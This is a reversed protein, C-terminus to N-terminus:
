IPHQYGSAALPEGGLVRRGVDGLCTGIRVPARLGKAAFADELVFPDSTAVILEYDEGGGIAEELTAGGAIPVQDLEFGVGSAHALRHLDLGLGDSVDMMATAGAARAVAGEGLRAQPRRYAAALAPDASAPDERLRRLGAASAGLPGTVFLADGPRAGSRLVAPRGGELRGIVSTSVLLQAAVTLDGGVVPCGWRAAAEAIGEAVADADTGSPGGLTVVAGTPVGGMAAIDSVAVTLAKWGVDGLTVLGLDVHVGEVVADTTLLLRSREAGEGTWVVAADDGSWTEGPPPSGIGARLRTRIRELVADEGTPLRDGKDPAQKPHVV